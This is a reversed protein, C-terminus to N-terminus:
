PILGEAPYTGDAGIIAVCDSQSAAMDRKLASGYGVNAASSLVVAGSLEATTRTSDTSGDTLWLSKSNFQCDPSRLEFESPRQRSPARRMYAPLVISPEVPNRARKVDFVRSSILTLGMAQMKESTAKETGVALHVRVGM